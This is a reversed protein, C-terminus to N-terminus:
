WRPRQPPRCARIFQYGQGTLYYIRVPDLDKAGSLTDWGPAENELCYVLLNLRELHDLIAMFDRLDGPINALAQTRTVTPRGLGLKLYRILLDADTGLMVSSELPSRPPIPDPDLRQGVHDILDFLFTAEVSSLRKLLESYQPSIALGDQCLAANALLASWATCLPEKDELAAGDLIPFLIASSVAAAPDPRQQIMALTRGLLRLIREVREPRRESRIREGVDGAAPGALARIGKALADPIEGM